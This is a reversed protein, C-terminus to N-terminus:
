TVHASLIWYLQMSAGHLQITWQGLTEKKWPLHMNHMNSTKLLMGSFFPHICHICTGCMDITELPSQGYIQDESSNMDQCLSSLCDTWFRDSKSITGHVTDWDLDSMDNAQIVYAIGDGLERQLADKSASYVMKQKIKCSDPGRHQLFLILCIKFCTLRFLM